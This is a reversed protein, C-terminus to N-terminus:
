FGSCGVDGVDGVDYILKMGDISQYLIFSNLTGWIVWMLLKVNINLLLLGVDGM